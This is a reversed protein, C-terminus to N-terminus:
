FWTLKGVNDFLNQIEPVQKCSAALVLHFVHSRCHVYTANKYHNRIKAQVGNISSRMTAAGGYGQGVLNDMNLGRSTVSSLIINAITQADMKEIQVFGLFDEGVDNEEVHRICLSVQECTSCDQNDDLINWYQLVSSVIYLM